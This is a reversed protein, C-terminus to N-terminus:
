GSRKKKKEYNRKYNRKRTRLKTLKIKGKKKIRIKDNEEDSGKNEKKTMLTIIKMKNITRKKKTIYKTMKKIM